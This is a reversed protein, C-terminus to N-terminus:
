IRPVVGGLVQAGARMGFVIKHDAIAGCSKGVCNARKQIHMLCCGLLNASACCATQM